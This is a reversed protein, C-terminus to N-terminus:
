VRKPARIKTYIVYFYSPLSRSDICGLVVGSGPYWHSLSLKVISRVFLHKSTPREWCTVVCVPVFAYCFCSLFLMFSGCFFCQLIIFFLILGVHGIRVDSMITGIPEEM